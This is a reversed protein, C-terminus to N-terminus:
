WAPRRAVGHRSTPCAINLQCQSVAVSSSEASFTNLVDESAEQGHFYGLSVKRLCHWLILELFFELFFYYM